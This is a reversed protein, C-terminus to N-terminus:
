TLAEFEELPLYVGGYFSDLSAYNREGDDFSDSGYFFNNIEVEWTNNIASFWDLPRSQNGFESKNFGGFTITSTGNQPPLM